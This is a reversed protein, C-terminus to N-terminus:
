VKTEDKPVEAPKVPEKKAVVPEAKKVEVPKEVPKEVKTPVKEEPAAAKQPAVGLVGEQKIQTIDKQM